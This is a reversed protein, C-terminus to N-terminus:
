GIAPGHSTNEGPKAIGNERYAISFLIIIDGQSALSIKWIKARKAFGSVDKYPAFQQGFLVRIRDSM